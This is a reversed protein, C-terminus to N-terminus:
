QIPQRHNCFGTATSPKPALQENEKELTRIRQKQREIADNAVIVARAMILEPTDDPCSTIYGGTKRIAPLVERTVWRRFQKAEPKRSDLITDYLGDETVFNTNQVRGMADQIPHMTVVGDELRKIVQSADLGLIKCLDPLCFLPNGDIETVRVEGFQPNNFIQIKTSM